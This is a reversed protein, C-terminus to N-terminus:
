RRMGSKRSSRAFRGTIPAKVAVAVRSTRSSIRARRSKCFGAYMTVPNSRFFRFNITCCGSFLNRVTNSIRLDRWFSHPIM